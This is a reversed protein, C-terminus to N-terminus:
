KKIKNNQLYLGHNTTGSKYEYICATCHHLHAQFLHINHVKLIFFVCALKFNNTGLAFPDLGCHLSLLASM